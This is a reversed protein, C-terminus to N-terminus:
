VKVVEPANVVSWSFAVWSGGLTLPRILGLRNWM